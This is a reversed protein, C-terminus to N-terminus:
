LVGHMKSMAEEVVHFKNRRRRREKANIRSIQKRPNLYDFSERKQIFLYNV